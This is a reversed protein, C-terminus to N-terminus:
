MDYHYRLIYRPSYHTLVSIISIHTLCKIKNEM